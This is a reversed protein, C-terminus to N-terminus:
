ESHPLVVLAKLDYLQIRSSLRDSCCADHGVTFSQLVQARPEINRDRDISSGELLDLIQRKKILDVGSHLLACLPRQRLSGALSLARSVSCDGSMWLEALLSPKPDAQLSFCQIDWHVFLSAM